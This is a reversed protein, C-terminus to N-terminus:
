SQHLHHQRAPVGVLRLLDARCQGRTDFQGQL